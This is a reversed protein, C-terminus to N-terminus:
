ILAQHRALRWVAPEQKSQTLLWLERFPVAGNEASERILGSFEVSAVLVQALAEFGLLEARLTVVETCNARGGGTCGPLELCLEDLMEPTTLASLASMEAHDWAHQLLVFHRRLDALLVDRDFGAPLVIAAAPKPRAIGRTGATVSRGPGGVLAAVRGVTRARWLWAAGGAILLAGGASSLASAPLHAPWGKIVFLAALAALLGVSTALSGLAAACAPNASMALVVGVCLALPAGFMSRARRPWHLAFGTRSAM